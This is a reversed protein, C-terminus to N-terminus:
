CKSINNKFFFFELVKGWLVCDSNQFSFELFKNFFHRPTNKNISLVNQSM